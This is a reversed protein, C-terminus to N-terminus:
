NVFLQLKNELLVVIGYILILCTYIFAYLPVPTNQDDYNFGFSKLQGDDTFFIPPKLLIILLVIIIFIFSTKRFANSNFLM